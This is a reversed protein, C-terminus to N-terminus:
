VTCYYQITPISWTEYPKQWFHARMCGGKFITELFGAKIAYTNNFPPYCAVKQFFEKLM